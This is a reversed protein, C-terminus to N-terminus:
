HGEPDILHGLLRDIIRDHYALKTERDPFAPNPEREAHHFRLRWKLKAIRDARDEANM